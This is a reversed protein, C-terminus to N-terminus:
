ELLGSGAYDAITEAEARIADTLSKRGSRTVSRM